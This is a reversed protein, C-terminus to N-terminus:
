EWYCALSALIGNNLTLVNTFKGSLLHLCSIVFQSVLFLGSKIRDFLLNIKKVFNIQKSTETYGTFLHSPESSVLQVVYFLWLLASCEWIELISVSNSSVKCRQRPDISISLMYSYMCPLVLLHYSVQGHGDIIKQM